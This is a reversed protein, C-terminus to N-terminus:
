TGSKTENHDRDSILFILTIMKLYPFQIEYTHKVASM